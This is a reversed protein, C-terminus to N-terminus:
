GVSCSRGRVFNLQREIAASMLHHAQEGIRGIRRVDCNIDVGGRKADALLKDDMGDAIIDDDHLLEIREGISLAM